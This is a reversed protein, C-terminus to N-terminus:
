SPKGEPPAALIAHVLMHVDKMTPVCFEEFEMKM